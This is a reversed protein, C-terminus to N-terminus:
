GPFGLLSLMFIATAVALWPRRRALGALDEVLLDREGNRGAMALVAFAGVTMLTYALTYFLFAGAGLANGAAVAALLYGAHAISSYALMRKVQQQAIAILNGVVMTLAALWWVISQWAPTAGGLAHLLVRVLA